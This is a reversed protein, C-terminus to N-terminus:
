LRDREILPVLSNGVNVLLIGTMVHIKDHDVLKRYKAIATAANGETDEEILEIKRGGAQYNVQELSMKLGDLMDKGAQAFIGTLPGMFGIRISEAAAAPSTALAALALLLATTLGVRPFKM